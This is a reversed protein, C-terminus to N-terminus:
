HKHRRAVGVLGLLGSGFLWVAAPVPVPSVEAFVLNDYFIGSGNDTTGTAVAGFGFSLTDGAMDPTIALDVSYRLWEVPLNTSDNSVFSEGKDVFDLALMYAFASSDGELNGMKADYSFRWTSGVDGAGIVQEQYTSASVYQGLELAAQNNYDTYKSLVVAGQDPGGQGTAVGQISGPDGNAAPFPGYLGVRTAGPNNYPNSDFVQGFIQWGDADLDNVFPPVADPDSFGQNPTMGEFNQTYTALAASSTPAFAVTAALALATLSFKFYNNSSM